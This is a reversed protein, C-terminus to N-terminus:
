HVSPPPASKVESGSVSDQGFREGAIRSAFRPLLKGLPYVRRARRHIEVSNTQRNEHLTYSFLYDGDGFLGADSKGFRLDHLLLTDGKQEAVFYGESVWRFWEVPQRNEYKEILYHNGPISRFHIKENQDFLSYDGQWFGNDGSAIGNWLIINLPMPMTIFERYALGQARLSKEFVDNVHLKVGAAILLYCSSVAIGTLNLVRRKKSSREYFMAAIVFCLFPVTYLPDVIFIVNLAVRENSFPWFFQTGWVTLCDLLPHTALCWFALKSWDKWDAGDNRHLKAILAGLIPAALLAFVLSHSFGRHYVLKEIDNLIPFFVVDLDPLTGAAAGWFIAKNGAKRGLVAEGVAAGLTIQTLSDM